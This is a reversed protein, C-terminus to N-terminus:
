LGNLYNRESIPLQRKWSYYRITSDLTILWRRLGLRLKNRLTAVPLSTKLIGRSLANLKVLTFNAVALVELCPANFLEESITAAKTFDYPKVCYTAVILPFKYHNKVHDAEDFGKLIDQLDAYHAISESELNAPIKYGMISEPLIYEPWKSIFSLCAVVQSLNHIQAKLILEKEIGTFLAVIQIIDNKAEIIGLFQRFNVEHWSTHMDFSLSEQKENRTITLNIKM